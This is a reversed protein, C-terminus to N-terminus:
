VKKIKDVLKLIRGHHATDRYGRQMWEDSSIHDYTIYDFVFEFILRRLLEISPDHVHYRICMLRRIRNCRSCFADNRNCGKYMCQRERLTKISALQQISKVGYALEVFKSPTVAM